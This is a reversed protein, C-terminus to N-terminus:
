GEDRLHVCDILAEICAAEDNDSLDEEPYPDGSSEYFVMLDEIGDPEPPQYFDGPDAPIFRGNAKIPLGGNITLYTSVECEINRIRSM